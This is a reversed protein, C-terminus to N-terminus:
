AQEIALKGEKLALVVKKGKGLDGFLVEKALYKKINEDIFRGIPRAGLKSDYASEGIWNRVNDPIELSIGQETLKNELSMLFKDVIRRIIVEDIRNFHIIADLRNRFEPTFFNKLAKERKAVNDTKSDANLGISGGEMEKAGANTTLIIITNRFDTKRGNADSLVGHDLIQLLINYIDQHAKEIEDLLLVCHPNKHVQDTLLGGQDFGVYGPPAGILKSVSHKEMYESMDFRIFEVGMCHALQKALETKGVGTPGSFLFGAIPREHEQLGSRSLLIANSVKEVAEDQGYLLLKLDRELYKLKDKESGSVTKRPVKSIQSVINEIDGITVKSRKKSAPLLQVFAGAEDLVDIAKDPLKKDSIYRNALDAALNIVNNSYKVGHHEEFKPKLGQLIKITDSVNPEDVDVRQFRRNLAVDKEFFKRYEDFTTSGMCRLTGRALAPKILNSADMSGGSTSGAGIITHIEDVFLINNTGKEKESELDKLVKKLREEFDGRFKTGALLGALDLSYVITGELPEPVEKNVIMEALGEAIATKGVGSDGVLIPNNKRRRCLIQTIRKLEKKRGILPDLKGEEAMKNLNTTYLDLARETKEGQAELPDLTTKEDEEGSNESKDHNHAIKEIIDVRDVGKSKLLYIAYSEKESFMAVLINIGKIKGKGSSQVHLAARQLVRQLSLSMEPQYTIGNRKAMTRMEDNAFQKKAMEEIEEESLISFNSPDSIFAQLDRSLISPKLECEELVSKVVPDDLLAFLMTEMTLFEHKRKNAEQIALNFIKELRESIM